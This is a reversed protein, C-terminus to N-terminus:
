QPAFFGTHCTCKALNHGIADECGQQCDFKVKKRLTWDLETLKMTFEKWATPHLMTILMMGQMLMPFSAGPSQALIGETPAEQLATSLLLPSPTLRLLFRCGLTGQLRPTPHFFSAGLSPPWALCPSRDPPQGLVEGYSCSISLKALAQPQSCKLVLPCNGAAYRAAKQQARYLQAPRTCLNQSSSSCLLWPWASGAVHLPEPSTSLLWPTPDAGLASLHIPVHVCVVWLGM